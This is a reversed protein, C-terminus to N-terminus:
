DQGKASYPRQRRAATLGGDAARHQGVQGQETQAADSGRIIPVLDVSTAAASPTASPASTANAGARVRLRRNRM